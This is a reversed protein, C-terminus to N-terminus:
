MCIVHPQKAMGVSIGTSWDHELFIGLMINEFRHGLLLFFFFSFGGIEVVFGALDMWDLGFSFVELVPFLM